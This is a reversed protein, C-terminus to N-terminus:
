FSEVGLFSTIIGVVTPALAAIVFGIIAAIMTKRSNQIKEEDGQSTLLIFAGFLLMAGFTILFLPRILSGAASIIEELSDYRSPNPIKLGLNQASIEIVFFPFITILIFSTLLFKFKTKM